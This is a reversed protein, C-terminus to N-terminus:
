PDLRWTFQGDSTCAFQRPGWSKYSGDTFVARGYLATGGAGANVTGAGWPAVQGRYTGDVYIDVWWPTYNNATVWCDFIGRTKAGGKSPPAPPAKAADNKTAQDKDQKINTDPGAGRSAMAKDTAKGSSAQPASASAKPKAQMSLALLFVALGILLTSTLGQKV